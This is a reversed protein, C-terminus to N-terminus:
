GRHDQCSPCAWVTRTRPTWAAIETGCRRCPLGARGYVYLREDRALDSRRRAGAEAPDVTVIRGSRAGRRLEATMREWLRVARDGDLDGAPVDPHIGELFLVEARYVNGVGAVVKQDLLAECIPISRRALRSAFSEAGRAGERLPDPGLRSRIADEEAPDVLSCDTPGALYVTVADSAMALRTGDTPPPPTGRHTRFKGFLGLHVHLTLGGEWRYFLHKGVAEVDALVRGDLRAAGAAFRGQPSRVALRAGALDRRHLRAYRHLTHGEPM